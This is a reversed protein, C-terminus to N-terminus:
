LVTLSSEDISICFESHLIRFKADAADPFFIWLVEDSLDCCLAPSCQEGRRVHANCLLPPLRGGSMVAFLKCSFPDGVFFVGLIM